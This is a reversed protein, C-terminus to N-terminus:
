EFIWCIDSVVFFLMDSKMYRDFDLSGCESHISAVSRSEHDEETVNDDVMKAFNTGDMFAMSESASRRHAGRKLSISEPADM